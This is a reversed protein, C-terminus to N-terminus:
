AAIAFVEHDGQGVLKRRPRRAYWDPKVTAAKLRADIPVFLDDASQARACAYEEHHSSVADCRVGLALSFPRPAEFVVFGDNWEQEMLVGLHGKTKLGALVDVEGVSDIGTQRTQSLVNPPASCWFSHQIRQHFPQFVRTALKVTAFFGVLRSDFLLDGGEFGLDAVLLAADPLLLIPFGYTLVSVPLDL